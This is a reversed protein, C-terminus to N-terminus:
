PGLGIHLARHPRAIIGFGYRRTLSSITVPHLRLIALIIVGKEEYTDNCACRTQNRKLVLELSYDKCVLECCSSMMVSSVLLICSLM